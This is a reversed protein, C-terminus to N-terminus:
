QTRVQRGPMPPPPLQVRVNSRMATPQLLVNPGSADEALRDSSGPGRGSAALPSPPDFIGAHAERIHRRVVRFAAYPQLGCWCGWMRDPSSSHMVCQLWAMLDPSIEADNGISDSDAESMPAGRVHLRKSKNSPLWDDDGVNEEEEGELEADSDSNASPTWNLQAAIQEREEGLLVVECLVDPSFLSYTRQPPKILLPAARSITPAEDAHPAAGLGGDKSM